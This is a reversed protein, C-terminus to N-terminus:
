PFSIGDSGPDAPSEEPVPDTKLSVTNQSGNWYIEISYMQCLERLPIM